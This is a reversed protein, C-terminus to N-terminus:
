GPQFRLPVVVRVTRGAFYGTEPAAQLDPVLTLAAAGFGEGPPEEDAVRCDSLLGDTVMCNLKALGATRASWAVPPYAARVQAATPVKMWQMRPTAILLSFELLNPTISEPSASFTVTLTKQPAADPLTAVPMLGVSHEALRLAADGFGQGSPTESVLLCDHLKLHTDQACTITASGSIGAEKAAKPYYTLVEIEPNSPVTQHVIPAPLAPPEAAAAVALACWVLGTLATASATVRM